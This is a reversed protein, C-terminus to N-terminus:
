WYSGVLFTLRIFTLEKKESLDIVQNSDSMEDDGYFVAYLGDEYSLLANEQAAAIDVKNENYINQFGAKGTQTLASLYEESPSHTTDYEETDITKNNYEEAKIQVIKLILGKLSVLVDSNDLVIKQREIVPRKKGIQKVVIDLEMSDNKLM